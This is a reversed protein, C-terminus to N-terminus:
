PPTRRKTTQKNEARQAKARVCGQQGCRCARTLPSTTTPRLLRTHHVVRPRAEKARECGATGSRGRAYTLRHQPLAPPTAKRRRHERGVAARAVEAQAHPRALLATPARCQKCHQPAGGRLPPSAHEGWSGQSFPWPDGGQKGAIHQSAPPNARLPPVPGRGARQAAVDRQPQCLDGKMLNM